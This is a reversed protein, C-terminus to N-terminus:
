LKKHIRHARAEYRLWEASYCETPERKLVFLWLPIKNGIGIEIEDLALYSHEMDKIQSFSKGTGEVEFTFKGNVTFDGRETATVQHEATLTNAL